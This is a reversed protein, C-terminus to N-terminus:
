HFINKMAWPRAGLSCGHNLPQKRSSTNEKENFAQFVPTLELSSYEENLINTRARIGNLKGKRLVRDSVVNRCPSWRPLFRFPDFESTGVQARMSYIQKADGEPMRIIGSCTDTREGRAYFLYGKDMREYRHKTKIDPHWTWTGKVPVPQDKEDLLVFPVRCKVDIFCPNELQFNWQIVAAGAKGPLREIKTEHLILEPSHSNVHDKLQTLWQAVQEALQENTM